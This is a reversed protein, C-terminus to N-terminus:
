EGFGLYGGFYTGKRVFCLVVCLVSVVIHVKCMIISIVVFLTVSLLLFVCILWSVAAHLELDAICM